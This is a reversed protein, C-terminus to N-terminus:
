IPRLVNNKKRRIIKNELEWLSGQLLYKRGTGVGTEERSATSFQCRDEAKESVNILLRLLSHVAAAHAAAIARLNLTLM